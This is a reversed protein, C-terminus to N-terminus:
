LEYYDFRAFRDISQSPEFLDNSNELLHLDDASRRAINAARKRQLATIERYLAETAVRGEDANVQLRAILGQLKVLEALVENVSEAHDKLVTNKAMVHGLQLTLSPVDRVLRAVQWTPSGEAFARRARHTAPLAELIRAVTDREATEYQSNM